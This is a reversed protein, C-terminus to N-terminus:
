SRENKETIAAIYYESLSLGQAIACARATKWVEEPVPLNYYKVKANREAKRKTTKTGNVFEELTEPKKGIAM